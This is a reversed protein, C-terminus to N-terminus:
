VVFAEWFVFSMELLFDRARGTVVRVADASGLSGRGVVTMQYVEIRGDYAGIRHGSAQLEFIGADEVSSTKQLAMIHPM